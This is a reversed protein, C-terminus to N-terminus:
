TSTHTIRRYKLPTQNFRKKFSRHFHSVDQFGCNLCIELISLDSERLLSAATRLKFQNLLRTYSYGFLEKVLHATRSQSLNLRDALDKLSPKNRHNIHLFSEISLHRDVPELIKEEQSNQPHHFLTLAQEHWILLRSRLQRLSELIQEAQPEEVSRLTNDIKANTRKRIKDQILAKYTGSAKRQGAFLIWSLRNDIFVPMVWEMFGAHCSHYRGEPFESIEKRLRTVEFDVCAWDHRAKIRICCPAHHSFREPLLFPWLNSKLDHVVIQLDTLAEFARIAHEPTQFLSPFQSM